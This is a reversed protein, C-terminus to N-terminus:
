LRGATACVNSVKSLDHLDDVHCSVHCIGAGARCISVGAVFTWSDTIPNYTEVSSLYDNGDHGGAAYIKGALTAVGVGGRSSLMKCVPTWTNTAPDFREVSNLPSSEDFGGVAYLQGHLETVGAGARRQNMPAVYTWKDLHPDYRECSELSVAGDNGGVAYIYGKLAVVAVGGRPMQMQQVHSWSNLEPDYREVTKFCKTDDLGGVAYIPGELYALAIGRRYSHMPAISKWSNACPDFMEASHLHENGDHGGVAYLKRNASVVGVHRRKTSMDTVPFWRDNRLDFCEISSFPDGSAGRGGVCFLVGACSKRPLVRDSLQVDPLVCALSLQYSQAEDLYDRCTMDTKLLEESCVTTVLFTVPLMPLKVKGILHALHTRRSEPDHKVWRIVAEYVVVENTVNLDTSALLTYLHEVTMMVFEDCTVVDMFNNHIFDDACAVLTDHGHQEAFTRIGICNSPHLHTKMFTCCANSVHDMQVISSAYLLSQVNEVTLVIKSTYAFKILDILASEDIDQIRVSSRRSEMMECLFMARFYRSCCALVVRHCNVSKAGVCIEVDCLQGKQYFDYLMRFSDRQLTKEEFRFHLQESAGDPSPDTHPMTNAHPSDSRQLPVTSESPPFLQLSDLRMPVPPIFPSSPSADGAQPDPRPPVPQQSSMAGTAM